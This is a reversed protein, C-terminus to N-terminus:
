PPSNLLNFLQQKDHVPPLCATNDCIYAVGGKQALRQALIGPLNQRTEPISLVYRWPAYLHQIGTKWEALDPEPARIVVSQTGLCFDDLAHLISCHGDPFRMLLPWVAQLVREAAQTYRTDGLIHGLHLLALAAVGNGAPLTDDGFSKPRQLLKEASRATFYFGGNESDAFENLLCEALEVAFNLDSERWRVQLLSLTAQLLNAYDDLYAPFRAKGDKYVAYLTGNQWLAQRIFDLTTEALKIYDPRQLIEGAVALGDITLANWACLIKEDRGPRIREARKASLTQILAALRTDVTDASLKMDEALHERPLTVRLHWKGEFNPTENLGFYRTALAYDAESLLAKIERRDWVYFRGEAGESDADLTSYFGGEPSLMDSQLWNVTEEVVRKFLPNKTIQWAQSYMKLLQGNDYLMKEFHPIDWFDDTSYRFFGGGLQDYVGGLAMKELSFSAMRLADQDAEGHKASRAYHRLLRELAPFHPFKPARGFGGQEADFYQALNERAQNLPEISLQAEGTNQYNQAVQALRAQVAQKQEGVDDERYFREVGSLVQQFSPLGHRPQPPFYTGAFIPTHDDPTLFMTLPWGGGREFMLQYAQQYLKDLDPREERDVKINIFYQNMLEACTQNAFSEHAMVHCWHCASYGISLLIPKNEARARQLAEESWPYWDVPNDAHQLLYPSSEYQLRNPM